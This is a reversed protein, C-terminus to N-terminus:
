RQLYEEITKMEGTFCPSMDDDGEIDICGDNFGYIMDRSVLTGSWNCIVIGDEISSFDGEDNHRIDYLHVDPMESLERRVERSEVYLMEKNDVIVVDFKM